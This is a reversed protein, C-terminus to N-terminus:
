MRVEEDNLEACKSLEPVFTAHAALREQLTRDGASTCALLMHQCVSATSCMSPLAFCAAPRRSCTHPHRSYTLQQGVTICASCAQSLSIGRLTPVTSWERPWRAWRGGASGCGCRAKECRASTPLLELFGTDIMQQVVDSNYTRCRGPDLACHGCRTSVSVSWQSAASPWVRTWYRPCCELPCCCQLPPLLDREALNGALTAAQEKWNSQQMTALQVIVAAVGHQLLLEVSACSSKAVTSVFQALEIQPKETHPVASV